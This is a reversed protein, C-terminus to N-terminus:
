KSDLGCDIINQKLKDTTLKADGSRIRKIIISKSNAKNNGYATTVFYKFGAQKGAEILKSNYHGFPFCFTDPYSGTYEHIMDRSKVLDNLVRKKYNEESEYKATNADYIKYALKGGTKGEPDRVVYDHGNFSHSQIDILGSKYMEKIEDPGLSNLENGTPKYNQVWFTIVYCEAPVNYKKLIPYAYKYFSEYGDDFTIVAANPPLATEGNVARIMDKFPIVNFGSDKLMKIDAEFRKPTITISSVPKTSIHHYTLVVAKGTYYYEEKDNPKDESHQPINHSPPLPEEQVEPPLAETQQRGSKQEEKPKKYDPAAEKLCSASIFCSLIILILLIRKKLFRM